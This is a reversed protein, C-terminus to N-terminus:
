GGAVAPFVGIRAGSPIVSDLGEALFSADRGNVFIHVYPFLNGAEDLMESKLPPFRRIVEDLLQRVTAGAPLDLVASGSGVVRRFTAYFNVVM